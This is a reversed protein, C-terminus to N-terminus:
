VPRLRVKKGVEGGDDVEGRNVEEEEVRETM